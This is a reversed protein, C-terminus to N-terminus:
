CYERATINISDVTKLKSEEAKATEGTGTPTGFTSVVGAKLLANYLNTIYSIPAASHGPASSPTSTAPTSSLLSTLNV